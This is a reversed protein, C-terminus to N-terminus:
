IKWAGLILGAILLAVIHYGADIIYAKFNKGEYLVDYFGTTLVFGVGVVLGVLLGTIFNYGPIFELLLALFLTTIFATVAAGIFMKPESEIEEMNFGLADAWIKGFLFKSYWFAGLVFYIVTIIIIAWINIM